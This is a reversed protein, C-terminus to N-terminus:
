LAHILYVILVKQKCCRFITYAADFCEQSACTSSFLVKLGIQGAAFSVLAMLMRPQRAVVIGALVCYMAFLGSTILDASLQPLLTQTEGPGTQLPECPLQKHSSVAQLRQKLPPQAHPAAVRQWVIQYDQLYRSDFAAECYAFYFEFRCGAM